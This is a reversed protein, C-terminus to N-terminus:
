PQIFIFNHSKFGKPQHYTYDFRNLWESLRTLHRPTNAEILLLPKCHRILNEGSKLVSLETGETDLKIISIELCGNERWIRDLRTVTVEKTEDTGLNKSVHGMSTFASDKALNLDAVGDYEELALAYVEVNELANMSINKRLRTVNSELPEFAFVKGKPEVAHGFSVTFLGVHARVDM